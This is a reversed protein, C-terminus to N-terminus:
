RARPNGLPHAIASIVTRNKPGDRTELVVHYALREPHPSACESRVRIVSTAPFQQDYCLPCLAVVNSLLNVKPTLHALKLMRADGGGLPCDANRCRSELRLVDRRLQERSIQHKTQRQTRAAKPELMMHHGWFLPAARAFFRVIISPLRAEDRLHAISLQRTASFYSYRMSEYDKSRAAVAALERLDEIGKVWYWEDTWKAVVRAGKLEGLCHEIWRSSTTSLVNKIFVSRAEVSHRTQM